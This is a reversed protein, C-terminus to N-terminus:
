AGRAAPGSGSEQRVPALRRLDQRLAQLDSKKDYFAHAGAKLCRKRYVEEVHNTFVLVKTQPHNSRVAHLVELGSGDVLQIDLLVIDPPNSRMSEIAPAPSAFEGVVETGEVEALIERLVQRVVASDDVILISMVGPELSSCAVADRLPLRIM